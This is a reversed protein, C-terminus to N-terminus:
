AIAISEITVNDNTFVCIDAAIAMAKRALVEPDVGFYDAQSVVKLASTVGPVHAGDLTYRHGEPHFILGEM